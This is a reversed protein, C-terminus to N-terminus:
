DIDVENIEIVTNFNYELNNMNIDEIKTINKSSQSIMVFNFHTEEISKIVDNANEKKKLFTNTRYGKGENVIHLNIEIDKEKERHRHNAKNDASSNFSYELLNNGQNNNISISKQTSISIIETNTLFNTLTNNTYNSNNYNVNYNDYIKRSILPSKPNNNCFEKQKIESNKSENKIKFTDKKSSYSSLIENSARRKEASLKKTELDSKDALYKYMEIDNICQSTEMLDEKNTNTNSIDSNKKNIILKKDNDDAKTSSSQIINVKYFNENETNQLNKLEGSELDNLKEQAKNLDTNVNKNENIYKADSSNLFIKNKLNEKLKGYNKDFGNTNNGTSPANSINCTNNNVNNSSLRSGQFNNLLIKSNRLKMRKDLINNRNHAELEINASSVNGDKPEDSPFKKIYNYNINKTNNCKNNYNNNIFQSDFPIRLKYKGKEFDFSRIIPMPSAAQPLNISKSLMLKSDKSNRTPFKDLFFKTDKEPMELNQSLELGCYSKDINLLSRDLFANSENNQIIANTSINNGLEQKQRLQYPSIAKKDKNREIPSVFAKKQQLTFDVSNNNLNLIIENPNNKNNHININIASNEKISFRQNLNQFEKAYNRSVPKNKENAANSIVSLKKYFSNKYDRESGKTLKNNNESCKNQNVCGHSSPEKFLNNECVGNINQKNLNNNCDETEKESLFSQRHHNKNNNNYKIYSTCSADLGNAAPKELMTINNKAEQPQQNVRKIRSLEKYNNSCDSHKEDNYYNQHYNSQNNNSNIKNDTDFIFNNNISNNLLLDSPKINASTSLILNSSNQGKETEFNKLMNKNKNYNNNFIIPSLRKRGQNQIILSSNIEKIKKNNDIEQSQLITSGINNLNGRNSKGAFNNNKNGQIIGQNGPKM